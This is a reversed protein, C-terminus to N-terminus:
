ASLPHGIEEFDIIWSALNDGAAIFAPFFM